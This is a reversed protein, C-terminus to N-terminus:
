AISNPFAKLGKIFKLTKKNIKRQPPNGQVAWAPVPMSRRIMRCEETGESSLNCANVVLNM